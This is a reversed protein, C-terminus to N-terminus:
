ILFLFVLIKQQIQLFSKVLGNEESNILNVNEEEHNTYFNYSTIDINQGSIESVNTVRKGDSSNDFTLFYSVENDYLHVNNEFLNTNPNLQWTNASMGYFLIYDESDFIANNNIDVVKINNEILDDFRFASNLHPLMGGGNGFLKISNVNLNSLNIGLQSLFVYDIKYIGNESTTIEYWDGNSLVSSEQGKAYYFYM